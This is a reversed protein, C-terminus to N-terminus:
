IPPFHGQHLLLVSKKKYSDAIYKYTRSMYRGDTTKDELDLRKNAIGTILYQFFHFDYTQNRFDSFIAFFQKWKVVLLQRWIFLVIFIRFIYQLLIFNKM